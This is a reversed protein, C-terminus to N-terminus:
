PSVSSRAPFPPRSPLGVTAGPALVAWPPCRLRLLTVRATSAGERVGLGRMSAAESFMAAWNEVGAANGPAHPKQKGGQAGSEGAPRWRLFPTHRCLWGDQVSPGTRLGGPLVLRWHGGRVGPWGNGLLAGPGGDGSGQGSPDEWLWPARAVARRKPSQRRASPLARPEPFAASLAASIVPTASLVKLVPCM